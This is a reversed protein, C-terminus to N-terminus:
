LNWAEDSFIHHFLINDFKITGGKALVELEWRSPIIGVKQLDFKITPMTRRENQTLRSSIAPEYQKNHGRYQYPLKLGSSPFRSADETAAIELKDWGVNVREVLKM